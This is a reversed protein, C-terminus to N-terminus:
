ISSGAFLVDIIIELQRLINPIDADPWFIELDNKNMQKLVIIMASKIFLAEELNLTIQMSDKM